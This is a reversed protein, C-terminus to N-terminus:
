VARGRMPARVAPVTILIFGQFSRMKDPQYHRMVRRKRKQSGEGARGDFHGNHVRVPLSGSDFSDAAHQPRKRIGADNGGCTRGHARGM